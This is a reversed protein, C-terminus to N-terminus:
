FLGRLGRLARLIKIILKFTDISTFFQIYFMLLGEHEEHGEHNFFIDFFIIIKHLSKETNIGTKISLLQWESLFSIGSITCGLNSIM